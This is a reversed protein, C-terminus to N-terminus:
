DRSSRRGRAAPRISLRRESGVGTSETTVQSNRSLALHIIRRENAPMPDLTFPRGTSRVRKALRQALTELYKYRRQRYGEVDINVPSWENLRRSIVFNVMFQLSDLTSGGRGILLGSDDGLIDISLGDGSISNTRLRVDADVDLKEFMEELVEKALTVAEPTKEKPTVRVIAPESGIGLIGARGETVVVVDVEERDADLQKLALDIAEEVTKASVELSEM